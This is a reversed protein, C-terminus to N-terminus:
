LMRNSSYFMRKTVESSVYISVSYRNTKTPTPKDQGLTQLVATTATAGSTLQTMMQTQMQQMQLLATQFQQAQMSQQAM